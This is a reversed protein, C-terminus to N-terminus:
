LNSSIVLHLKDAASKISNQQESLWDDYEENNGFFDDLKGMFGHSQKYDKCYVEGKYRMNAVNSLAVIGTSGKHSLGRYLGSSAITGENMTLLKFQDEYMDGIGFFADLGEKTAVIIKGAPCINSILSEMVKLAEDAAYNLAVDAILPCYNGGIANKLM